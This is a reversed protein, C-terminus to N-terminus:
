SPAEAFSGRRRVTAVLWGGVLHAPVVLALFSSHYWLPAHEWNLAQVVIGIALEIVALVAVHTMIRRGALLATAAGAALSCLIGGLALFYLLIGVGQPWGDPGFSAPSVSRAIATGAQSVVGWTLIGAAVALVSRLMRMM